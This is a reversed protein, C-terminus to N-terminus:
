AASGAKCEINAFLMVVSRPKARYTSAQVVPAIQWEVIDNPTELATDVWRRWISDSANGLPPLEFDLPEWHANLIMHFLLVENQIEATFAVSHSHDGWDPQNLKVGHWSFKAQRLLQNLSMRQGHEM